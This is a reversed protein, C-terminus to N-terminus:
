NQIVEIEVRRNAAAETENKEPLAFLPISSGFGRFSMRSKDIGNLELFQKVAKARQTSLDKRDVLVCCLHGQINIIIQKRQQMVLLLEYLKGRSDNTVAFTNTVFNLNNLKLKTGAPSYCLEDMFKTDLKYETKSGNFNDIVIKDPFVIPVKPKIAKKTKLGLIEEERPIDKQLLYYITVKRNEAKNKSQTFNEGFSRTKFDERIKVKDKINLFVREVRKQALSDNFKSTGDEDTYGNIALIKSTINQKIWSQLEKNETISIESKNSDFYVSFQEQAQLAFCNLLLFLYIFTKQM